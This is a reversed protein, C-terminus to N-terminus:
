NRRALFAPFVRKQKAIKASKGFHCAGRNERKGTLNNYSLRM